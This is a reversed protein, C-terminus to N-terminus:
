TSDTNFLGQIVYLPPLYNPPSVINGPETSARAYLMVIDKCGGNVFDNSTDLAQRRELEVDVPAAVALTVLATFLAAAAFKMKSSAPLRDFRKPFDFSFSPSSPNYLLSSFLRNHPSAPSHFSLRKPPWYIGLCRSSFKLCSWARDFQCNGLEDYIRLIQARCSSCVRDTGLYSM